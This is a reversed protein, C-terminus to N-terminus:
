AKHGDTTLQPAGLVRARLDAAFAKFHEPVRKAVLYAPILKATADLAVFTYADGVEPPDDPQVHAEKKKVFTWIEDLELVGCRLDRMLGDHLRACGDGVDRLLRAITKRWVGTMRETASLSNGEVLASLVRVREDESLVNM